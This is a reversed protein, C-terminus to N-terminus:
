EVSLQSSIKGMSHKRNTRDKNTCEFSTSHCNSHINSIASNKRKVGTSSGRCRSQSTILDATVDRDKHSPTILGDIHDAELKVSFAEDANRVARRAGSGRGGM